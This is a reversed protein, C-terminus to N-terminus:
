LKNQESYIEELEEMSRRMGNRPLMRPAYINFDTTDSLSSDPGVLEKGTKPKYDIINNLVIASLYKLKAVSGTISKNTITNRLFNENDYFYYYLKKYSADQLWM